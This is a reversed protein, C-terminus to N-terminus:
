SPDWWSQHRYSNIRKILPNTFCILWLLMNILVMNWSELIVRKRCFASSNVPMLSQGFWPTLHFPGRPFNPQMGLLLSQFLAIGNEWRGAHLHSTWIELVKSWHKCLCLRALEETLSLSFKGCTRPNANLVLFLVKDWLFSKWWALGPHWVLLRNRNEANCEAWDIMWHSGDKNKRQGEWDSKTRKLSTTPKHRTCLTSVQALSMITATMSIM